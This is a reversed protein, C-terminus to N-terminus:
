LAESFSEEAAREVLWSLERNVFWWVCSAFYCRLEFFLLNYYLDSLRDSLVMCTFPV